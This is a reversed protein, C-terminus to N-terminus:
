NFETGYAFANVAPLNACMIIQDQNAITMALNVSYTELPALVVAPQLLYKQKDTLSAWATSPTQYLDVTVNVPANNVLVLSSILGSYGSAPQYIVTAPNRTLAGLNAALNTSTVDSGFAVVRFSTSSPADFVKYTGGVGTTGASFTVYENEACNHAAGTTVTLMNGSRVVNTVSVGTNGTKHSLLFCSPLTLSSASASSTAFTFSTSASTSTVTQYGEFVGGIGNLYVQDGVALGHATATNVTAVNSTVSRSAVVVKESVWGSRVQGLTKYTVLAM